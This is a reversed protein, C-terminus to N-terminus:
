MIYNIIASKNTVAWQLDLDPSGANNTSMAINVNIVIGARAKAFMSKLVSASGTFSTVKPINVTFLGNYNVGFSNMFGTGITELNAIDVNSVDRLGFLLGQGATKLNPLIIDKLNVSGNFPTDGATIANNFVVRTFLPSICGAFLSSSIVTVKNFNSDSFSPLSYCNAFCSAGMNEINPINCVSLKSANGFVRVGLTKLSGATFSEIFTNESFALEGLSILSPFNYTTCPVLQFTQYNSAISNITIVSDAQVHMLSTCSTFAGYNITTINNAVFSTIKTEKFCNVGLTGSMLLTISGTLNTCGTFTGDSLATFSTWDFWSNELLRCNYFTNGHTISQLSSFDVTQLKFCNNFTNGGNTSTWNKFKVGTLNSCNSFAAGGIFTVLGENDYFYTVSTNNAFCNLPVSYNGGTINCQINDGLIKFDTIRSASLSLKAALLAPTNITRAVGGIFTNAKLKQRGFITKR